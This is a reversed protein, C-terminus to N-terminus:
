LTERLWKYFEAQWVLANQPKMIWHNEDPFYLFKSKLGKLRAAQFAEMGQGEPVRFDKGGQIILIPANWKNIHNIPNFEEYAKQAAANDTEWYPGGLDWNVFFLEETTGYMSKTNFLGCHSIFTKFRNGHVGALQFVSYGGYSAGVAGRREKDIYPEKSVEDIASLYDRISQGGWDKSIAENWETGFGPLGRRNPAVVVYGQSAMMQFNWRFSYFQSVPSQPGGQCYLLSPYQRRSDFNPPLIVWVLMDKGDSTKVMRKEVRPLNLKAYVADNVHTLQNWSKTKVDFSFIEAAHNMDTRTVILKDGSQGVIGTVDFMGESLQVVQPMKKTMGPFDVEFLQKTGQVAATFFVKKGDNSWKFSEVSGDWNKTLNMKAGNFLVIIDNKDSEYGDRAMSLWSLHGSPSYDPHVDYGMMGETLNVTNGTAVEFQYLDTNTSIAYATGFKKKCVYIIYKSDPSWIYDEDGGFPLQPSHFPQSPMIDRGKAGASNEKYFIHNFSGDSWTDWHRYHLDTYIQASTNKYQDYLDKGLVKNVKVAEHFVTYKGDPSINKNKLLSKYDTVAVPEGGSIPMTYFKTDMRDESVVPYSVKYVINKGDQSIGLAGVRGLTWLLEPTMVNQEQAFVIAPLLFLVILLKKM